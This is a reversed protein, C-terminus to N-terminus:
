FGFKRDTCECEHQDLQAVTPLPKVVAYDARKTIQKDAWAYFGACFLAILGAGVHHSLVGYVFM